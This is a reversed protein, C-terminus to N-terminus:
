AASSRTRTRKTTGIIDWLGADLHQKIANAASKPDGTQLVALLARHELALDFTGAYRPRLQVFALSLETAIGEFMRVMRDSGAASIIARHFALDAEIVESWPSGGAQLEEM